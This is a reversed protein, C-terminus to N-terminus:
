IEFVTRVDPSHRTLYDVQGNKSKWSKTKESWGLPCGDMHVVLDSNALIEVFLNKENFHCIYSRALQYCQLSLQRKM